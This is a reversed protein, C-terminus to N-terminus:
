ARKWPNQGLGLRKLDSQTVEPLANTTLRSNYYDLLAERAHRGAADSTSAGLLALRQQVALAPHRSLGYILRDVSFLPNGGYVWIFDGVSRIIASSLALRDEPWAAQAALLTRTLLLRGGRRLLTTMAGVAKTEGAGSRSGFRITIGLDDCVAAVEVTTEDLAQLRLRFRDSGSKSKVALNSTLWGQAEQQVCLGQRVYCRLTPVLRKRAAALVHQHNYVYYSGDRYSVEVVGYVEPDWHDAIHDAWKQDFTGQVNPDVKLIATPLECLGHTPHTTM